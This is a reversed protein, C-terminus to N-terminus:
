SMRHGIYTLGEDSPHTSVGGTGSAQTNSSSTSMAAATAPPPAPPAPYPAMGVGAVAAGHILRHPSHSQSHINSREM